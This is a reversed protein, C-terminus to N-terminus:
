FTSMATHNVPFFSSTTIYYIDEMTGLQVPTYVGTEAKFDLKLSRYMNSYYVWM